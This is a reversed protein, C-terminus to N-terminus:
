REAGRPGPRRRTEGEAHTPLYVPVGPAPLKLCHNNKALHHPPGAALEPRGARARKDIWRPETPQIGVLVDLGILDGLFHGSGDHVQVWYFGPELQSPLTFEAFVRFSLYGGLGTPEVTVRALTTGCRAPPSPPRIPVLNLRAIVPADTLASWIYGVSHRTSPNILRTPPVWGKRPDETSVRM